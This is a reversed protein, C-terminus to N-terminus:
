LFIFFIFHFCAEPETEGHKFVCIKFNILLNRYHIIKAHLGVFLWKQAKSWLVTGFDILKEELVWNLFFFDHGGDHFAQFIEILGNDVFFLKSFFGEFFDDILAFKDLDAVFFNEFGFFTDEIVQGDNIEEDVFVAM